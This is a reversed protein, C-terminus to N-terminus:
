NQAASPVVTKIFSLVSSGQVNTFKSVDGALCDFRSGTSTIGVIGPSGDGNLAIAPGGSDGFCTNSGEDNFTSSIHNSTVDDVEMQGSRLVQITGQNDRGFGFISIINGSDVGRSTMLPIVPLSTARSLQVIAVDNILATRDSTPQYGSHIFVKPAPIQNSNDIVTVSRLTGEFCHAATLVYSPDIMTGTCLGSQGDSNTIILQVVPSNNTSCATGNIIKSALGLVGCANQQPGSDGSKDDDGSSTCGALAISLSVTCFLVRITLSLPSM